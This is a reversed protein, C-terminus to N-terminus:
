RLTRSGPHDTRLGQQDIRARRGRSRWWGALAAYLVGVCSLVAVAIACVHLLVASDETLRFGFMGPVLLASALALGLALKQLAFAIDDVFLFAAVFTVTFLASVIAVSYAMDEGNLGRGLPRMTFAAAFNRNRPTDAHKATTGHTM